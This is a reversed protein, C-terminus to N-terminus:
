DKDTTLQTPANTTLSASPIKMWLSGDTSQRQGDETKNPLEFFPVSTVVLLETVDGGPVTGHANM